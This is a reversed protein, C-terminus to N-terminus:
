IWPERTLVRGVAIYKRPCYFDTARSGESALYLWRDWTM